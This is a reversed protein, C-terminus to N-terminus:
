FSKLSLTAPFGGSRPQGFRIELGLAVQLGYHAEVLAELKLALWLKAIVRPHIKDCDDM